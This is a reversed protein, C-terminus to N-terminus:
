RDNNNEAVKRCQTGGSLINNAFNMGIGLLLKYCKVSPVLQLVKTRPLTNPLNISIITFSLISYTSRTDSYKLKTKLRIM